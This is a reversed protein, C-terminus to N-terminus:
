IGFPYTEPILEGDPKIKLPHLAKTEDIFLFADYRESLKSPVYNGRERDPNYVVGIARHATRISFHNKLQENEDFIILKNKADQKHLEYEVSSPIAEPVKMKQMPAGWNSGAVVSGAYSGFGILVVGDREHQERVLQGANLLGSKAMDTARADGIHTNHEWVIAKANPDHYNVLKNLTEVMHRDRVNWSEDTFDTM